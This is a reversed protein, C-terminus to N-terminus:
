EESTDTEAESILKANGAGPTAHYLEPAASWTICWSGKVQSFLNTPNAAIWFPKTIIASFSAPLKFWHERWPSFTQTARWEISVLKNTLRTMDFYVTRSLASDIPLTVTPVGEVIVTVSHGKRAMRDNLARYSFYMVPKDVLTFSLASTGIGYWKPTDTPSYTYENFGHTIKGKRASNMIAANSQRLGLLILLLIGCIVLFRIYTSFQIRSIYYWGTLVFFRQVALKASYRHAAIFAPLELVPQPLLRYCRACCAAFLALFLFSEPNEYFIDSSLATLALACLALILGKMCRCEEPNAACSDPRTCRYLRWGTSALFFLLVLGCVMGGEAWVRLYANHTRAYHFLDNKQRYEIYRQEFLGCGVGWLPHASIMNGACYWHYLRASLIDAMSGGRDLTTKWQKLRYFVPVTEAKQILATKLSAPMGFWAAGSVALAACALVIWLLKRRRFLKIFLRMGALCAIFALVVLNIRCGSLIILAMEGSMLMLLLVKQHRRRVFSILCVGSVLIGTMIDALVAPSSFTANIRHEYQYITVMYTGSIYSYLGFLLIPLALWHLVWLLTHIDALRRLRSYVVLYTCIALSWGWLYRLPIFAAKEDILPVTRAQSLLESWAARYHWAFHPLIGILAAGAICVCVIVFSFALPIHPQGANYRRPSIGFAFCAAAPAIYALKIGPWPLWFYLTNFLLM